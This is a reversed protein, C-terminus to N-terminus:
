ATAHALQDSLSKTQSVITSQRSTIGELQNKDGKNLDQYAKNCNGDDIDCIAVVDGFQGAQVIDGHFESGGVIDHPPPEDREAIGEDLWHRERTHVVALKADSAYGHEL